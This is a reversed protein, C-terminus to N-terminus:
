AGAGKAKPAAACFDEYTPVDARKLAEGRLLAEAQERILEAPWFQAAAYQRKIERTKAALMRLRDLPSLRDLWREALDNCHARYEEERNPSEPAAPQASTPVESAAAFAKACDRALLLVGGWTGKGGTFMSRRQHLRRALNDIPCRDLANGIARLDDEPVFGLHAGLARNLMQRLEQYGATESPIPQNVPANEVFSTDIAAKESIALELLAEQGPQEVYRAAIDIPFNSNNECKITRCTVTPPLNIARSEGRKLRLSQLPKRPVEASPTEAADEAAPEAIEEVKPRPRCKVKRWEDVLLDYVNRKGMKRVAIAGARELEDLCAQVTNVHMKLKQALMDQAASVFEEEGALFVMYGLTQLAAPSVEPAVHTFFVEPIACYPNRRRTWAPLRRVRPATPPEAAAHSAAASARSM